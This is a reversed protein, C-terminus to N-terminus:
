TRVGAGFQDGIQAFPCVQRDFPDLDAVDVQEPIARVNHNV